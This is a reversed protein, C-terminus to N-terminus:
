FMQEDIIQSIDTSHRQLHDPFEGEEYKVSARESLQNLQSAAEERLEFSARLKFRMRLQGLRDTYIICEHRTLASESGQVWCIYCIILQVIFDISFAYIFRKPYQM